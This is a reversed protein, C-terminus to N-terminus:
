FLNYTDNGKYKKLEKMLIIRITQAVSMGQSEALDKLKRYDTTEFQFNVKQQNRFKSTGVPRGQQKKKKSKDMKLVEKKKHIMIKTKNYM